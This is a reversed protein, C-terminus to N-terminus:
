ASHNDLWASALCSLYLWTQRNNVQQKNNTRFPDNAHACIDGKGLFCAKAPVELFVHLRVPIWLLTIGTCVYIYIYVSARRETSAYKSLLALIDCTCKCICTFTNKNPPCINTDIMYIFVHTHTSKYTKNLPTPSALMQTFPSPLFSVKVLCDLQEYLLLLM